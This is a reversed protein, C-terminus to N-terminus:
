YLHYGGQDSSDLDSNSTSERSGKKMTRMEEVRSISSNPSGNKDKRKRWEWKRLWHRALLVGLGMFIVLTCGGGVAILTVLVGAMGKEHPLITWISAMYAAAMFSVSVWMLKHTVMLLKMMSKRRFPIISVLFIVIGLSLFLAVINCVMFVKFSTQRGRICTGTTQNFGGPPNIGAAFTVTAILVAVVTITNRANRLGENQLEIQKERRRRHRHRQHRTPSEPAKKPRLPPTYPYNDQIPQIEQSMPPLQDCRKAGAEQLAPLITLVGSNTADCEVVDLATYGKRNIANVNVGLKLIYIVMTSLKGATALHLITNGDNDPMNVLKTINLTEMLFKVAEYQNNKVGLHLVTEGSITRMEASELSTSLIEDIINIRGKIAALHLPTRGENDQLSSLDPDLKLLERTIDLHGKGCSIHLPTGGNLKKQWALQPRATLLEKVIDTHGAWAAAHLCTTSSDMEFMLLWPYGLLQKVVDLKGRECAMFLVSENNKNVKYVVMPDSEVLLRVINLRGERCAEHLPTELKENEASVMEPWLKLIESALEEHGFRATLHLITNLSQPLTQKATDEFHEEQLISLFTQVDGRLITDYLRRDM